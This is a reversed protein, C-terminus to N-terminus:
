TKLELLGSALERNGAIEVLRQELAFQFGEELSAGAIHSVFERNGVSAVVV